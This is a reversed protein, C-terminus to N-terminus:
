DPITKEPSYYLIDLALGNEMERYSASRKWFDGEGGGSLGVAPLISGELEHGVAPRIKSGYCLGFLLGSLREISSDLLRTTSGAIIGSELITLTM